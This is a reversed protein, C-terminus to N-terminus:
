YSMGVYDTCDCVVCHGKEDHLEMEDYCNICVETM